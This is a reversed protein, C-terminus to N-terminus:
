WKRRRKAPDKGVQYGAFLMSRATAPEPPRWFRSGIRHGASCGASTASDPFASLIRVFQIMAARKM